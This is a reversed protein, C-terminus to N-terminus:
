SLNRARTSPNYLKLHYKLYLNGIQKHRQISRRTVVELWELVMRENTQRRFAVQHLRLYPLSNNIQLWLLGRWYLSSSSAAQGLIRNPPPPGQKVVSLISSPSVRPCDFDQIPPPHAASHLLGQTMTPRSPSLKMRDAGNLGRFTITLQLPHSSFVLSIPRPTNENETWIEMTKWSSLMIKVNDCLLNNSNAEPQSCKKLLTYGM